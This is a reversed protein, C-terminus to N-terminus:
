NKEFLANLDTQESRETLDTLSIESVTEHFISEVALLM